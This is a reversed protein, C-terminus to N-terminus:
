DPANAFGGPQQALQNNNGGTTYYSGPLTYGMPVTGPVPPRQARGDAFFDSHHQPDFRPQRDMDPFIEIPTKPTKAGRFGLLSVVTITGLIFILFFARLM